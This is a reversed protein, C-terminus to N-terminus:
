DSAPPCPPVPALTDPSAHSAANVCEECAYEDGYSLVLPVRPPHRQCIRCVNRQRAEAASLGRIRLASRLRENEAQLARITAYARPADQRVHAIFDRNALTMEDDYAVFYAGELIANPCYVNCDGAFWPGATAKAAREEAAVLEAETLPLPDPM